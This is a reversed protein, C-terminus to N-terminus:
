SPPKSPAPGTVDISTWYCSVEGKPRMCSSGSFVATEGLFAIDGAKFRRCVDVDLAPYLIKAFAEKDGQAAVKGLRQWTDWDRCGFAERNFTYESMAALEKAIKETKEPDSGSRRLDHVCAFLMGFLFMGMIVKTMRESVWPKKPRM